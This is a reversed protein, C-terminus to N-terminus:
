PVFLVPRFAARVVFRGRLPLHLHWRHTATRPVPRSFGRRAKHSSSKSSNMRGKTSSAAPASSSLPPVRKFLQRPRMQVEGSNWILSARQLVADHRSFFASRGDHPDMIRGRHYPLRAVLVAQKRGFAAMRGDRRAHAHMHVLTLSSLPDVVLNAM